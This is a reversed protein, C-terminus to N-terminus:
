DKEFSKNTAKTSDQSSSLLLEFQELPHQVPSRAASETEPDNQSAVQNQDDHRLRLGPNGQCKVPHQLVVKRKPLGRGVEM